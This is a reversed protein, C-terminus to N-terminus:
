QLVYSLSLVISQRNDSNLNVNTTWMDEYSITAYEYALDAQIGYFRMGVGGSYSESSLPDTPFYYNQTAIVEARKSYGCRLVLWSAAVYEFGVKFGYSDLWPNSTSDSKTFLASAFPLYEYELKLSMNQRFAIGLGVSGRWPLKLEDSVSVVSSAITTDRNHVNLTGSYERKIISPPKVAFGITFNRGDYLGSGTFEQGKFDSTGEQYSAYMDKGMSFFTRHMALMGRGVITEYDSASGMLYMGSVGLSINSGVAASLAGGYGYISGDRMRQSQNWWIPVVASNDDTLPRLFPQPYLKGPDPTLVNNNQYFYNLNAYEVCGIGAAFKIDNLTFPIAAFIQVPQNKNKENQWNPRINDFQRFITDAGSPNNTSVAFYRAYTASDINPLMLTDTLGAMLLSFNPYNASPFWSQTQDITRYQRYAGVSIQIGDISQLSAPNAFMLGVDNKVAITIGGLGRSAASTNTTQDVSQYTLPKNYVQGLLTQSCLGACLTTMLYKLMTTKM